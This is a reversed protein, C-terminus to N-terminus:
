KRFRQILAMKLFFFRAAQKCIRNFGLPKGNDVTEDRLNGTVTTIYYKRSVGRSSLACAASHRELIAFLCPTRSLKKTTTGFFDFPPNNAIKYIRSKLMISLMIVSTFSSAFTVVGSRHKIHSSRLENDVSYKLLLRM